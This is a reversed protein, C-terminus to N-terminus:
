RGFDVQRIDRRNITRGLMQYLLQATGLELLNAIIQDLTRNLRAALGQRIGAQLRRLNVLDDQHATRGTDRFHLFHNLVVEALHRRLAHVRIFHHRHTGRDLATHQRAFHLIHQQQIYRRQRQTNFGQAPHEGLQDIGVRRNRSALALHEARGAVVLRRNFDMHQLAFTRHRVLVLADATEM